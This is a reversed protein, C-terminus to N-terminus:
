QMKGPLKWGAPLGASVLAIKIAGPIFPLVGPM